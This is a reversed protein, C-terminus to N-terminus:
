TQQNLWNQLAQLPVRISRGIKIAPFGLKRCLEYASTRGIRLYDALEDVTLLAPMTNESM